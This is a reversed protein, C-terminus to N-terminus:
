LVRSRNLTDINSLYIIVYLHTISSRSAVKGNPLCKRIMRISIRLTESYSELSISDYTNLRFNVIYKLEATALSMM